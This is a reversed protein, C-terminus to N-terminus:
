SRIRSFRARIPLFSGEFLQDVVRDVLRGATGEDGGHGSYHRQTHHADDGFSYPRSLMKVKAKGSIIPMTLPTYVESQTEVGSHTSQFLLFAAM